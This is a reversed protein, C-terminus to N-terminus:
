SVHSPQLSGDQRQFRVVPAEAKRTSAGRAGLVLAVQFAGVFLFGAAALWAAIRPARRGSDSSHTTAM